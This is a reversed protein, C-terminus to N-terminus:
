RRVSLCGTPFYRGGIYCSGHHTLPLAPDSEESSNYKDPRYHYGKNYTHVPPPPLLTDGRLFIKHSVESLQM